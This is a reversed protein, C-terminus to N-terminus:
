NRQVWGEMECDAGSNRDCEAWPGPQGRLLTWWACCSASCGGPESASNGASRLASSCVLLGAAWNVPMWLFLGASELASWDASVSGSCSVSDTAPTSIQMTWCPFFQPCGLFGVFATILRPVTLM